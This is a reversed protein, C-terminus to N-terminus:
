SQCVWTRTRRRRASAPSISSAPPSPEPDQLGAMYAGALTAVTQPNSGFTRDLLQPNVTGVDVVPAFNLNYGYTQLLQADHQGRQYAIASTTMTNAGPQSGILARFRNVLGGEQDVSMLLPIAAAHQLDSTMARTQDGTQINAAFSSAAM